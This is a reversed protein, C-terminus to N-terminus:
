PRQASGNRPTWGELGTVRWSAVQSGPDKARSGSEMVWQADDPSLCTTVIALANYLTHGPALNPVTRTDEKLVHHAFYLLKTGSMGRSFVSVDAITNGAHTTVLPGGFPLTLTASRKETARGPYTQNWTLTPTPGATSTITGASTSEQSTDPRAIVTSSPIMFM